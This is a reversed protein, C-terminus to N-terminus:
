QALRDAEKKALKNSYNDAIAGLGYGGLASLALGFVSNIVAFTKNGGNFLLKPKFVMASVASVALALVAGLKKGMNVKVYDNGKDTKANPETNERQKNNFYDVIMGPLVYFPIAVAMTKVSGPYKKAIGVAGATLPIASVIAGTITGTYQNKPKNAGASLPQTASIPQVSTM